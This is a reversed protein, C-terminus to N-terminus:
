KMGRCELRPSPWRMLRLNWMQSSKSSTSMLTPELTSFLVKPAIASALQTQNSMVSQTQVWSRSAEHCTRMVNLYSLIWAKNPQDLHKLQKPIRTAEQKRKSKKRQWKIFETQSWTALVSPKRKQNQNVHSQLKFMHKNQHFSTILCM